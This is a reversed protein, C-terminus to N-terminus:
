ILVGARFNDCRDCYNVLFQFESKLREIWFFNLQHKPTFKRSKILKSIFEYIKKQGAIYWYQSWSKSLFSKFCMYIKFSVLWNQILLHWLAQFTSFIYWLVKKFIKRMQRQKWFRMVPTGPFCLTIKSLDKWFLSWIKTQVGFM